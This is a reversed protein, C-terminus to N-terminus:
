NVTLKTSKTGLKVIYTGGPLALTHQGAPHITQLRLQGTLDYVRVPTTQSLSFAIGKETPLLRLDETPLTAVGTTTSERIEKFKQNWPYLKEFKTKSGQPVFLIM